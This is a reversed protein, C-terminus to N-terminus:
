SIKEGSTTVIKKNEKINEIIEDKQTEINYCKIIKAKKNQTIYKNNDLKEIVNNIYQKSGKVIIILEKSEEAPKIKINSTETVKSFNTEKILNNEVNSKVLIKNIKDQIGTEFFTIVNCSKKIKNKLYEVLIISLHNDNAYYIGLNEM